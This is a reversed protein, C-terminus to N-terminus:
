LDVGKGLRSSATYMGFRWNFDIEEKKDRHVYRRLPVRTVVLGATHGGLTRGNMM